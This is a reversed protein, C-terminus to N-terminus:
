KNTTHNPRLRPDSLTVFRLPRNNRACGNMVAALNAKFSGMSFSLLGHPELAVEPLVTSPHTDTILCDTEQLLADLGPQLADPHFSLDVYRPYPRDDYAAYVAAMSLPIEVIKRALTGPLRHDRLAPHYATRPTESWDFNCHDDRRKRGPMASSDVEIGLNELVGMLEASGFNGGMRTARPVWGRRGLAERAETLNTRISDLDTEQIWRGSERKHLHPHWAIEHGESELARLLDNFRDLIAGSDGYLTKIQNDARPFWTARAPKNFDDRLGALIEAIAPVAKEVGRWSLMDSGYNDSISPDFHDPDLDFTLAVVLEANEGEEATRANDAM